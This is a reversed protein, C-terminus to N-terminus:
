CCCCCEPRWRMENEIDDNRERATHNRSKTSPQIAEIYGAGMDEHVKHQVRRMRQSIVDEEQLKSSHGRSCERSYTRALSRKVMMTITVETLVEKGEKIVKRPAAGELLTRREPHKLNGTHQRSRSLMVPQGYPQTKLRM